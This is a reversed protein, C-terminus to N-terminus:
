GDVQEVTSSYSVEILEWRGTRTRTAIAVMSVASRSTASRTAYATLSGILLAHLLAIVSTTLSIKAIFATERIMIALRPIVHTTASVTGSGIVMAVKRALHAAIAAM